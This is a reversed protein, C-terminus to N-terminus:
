RLPDSGDTVEKIPVGAPDNGTVNRNATVGTYVTAFAVVGTAITYWLPINHPDIALLAVGTAGLVGSVVWQVAYVAKRIRPYENLPNM